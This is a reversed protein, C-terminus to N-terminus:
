RQKITFSPWCGIKGHGRVDLAQGIIKIKSSQLIEGLIILDQLDGNNMEDGWGEWVPTHWTEDACDRPAATRTAHPESSIVM